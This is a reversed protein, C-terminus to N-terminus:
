ENLRFNIAITTDVETPLGNLLYPRYRAQRVAELAASQLMVPGSTVAASEIRGSKSIIAHITVAGQTHSALAIPPYPPHIPALLLGATVGTSLMVPGAPARVGVSPGTPATALLDRGTSNADGMGGPSNTSLSPPGDGAIQPRVFQNAATELVAPRMTPAPPAAAAPASTSATDHVLVRVPPPPPPPAVPLILQPANFSLRGITEPRMLPIVIVITAISAQIAISLWVSWRNQAKIVHTSEVLSQEFM